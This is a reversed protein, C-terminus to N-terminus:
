RFRRPSRRDPVIRLIAAVAGWLAAYPVGILSLGLGCLVGFCANVLFQLMLYRSVRRTADDLAQMMLNMRSLGALRFLRDRLDHQEILLFLTFILVVGLAGLPALFPKTLDRLYQLENVPETVVQVPLPRSPDPPVNRRVTRELGAREQGAPPVVPTQPNSLEKGLERVNETARGLAGKAPARMAQIKNHINEQYGPLENLVQVMQNFIVIGIAGAAGISIAVVIVAALARNVRMKVLRAVAPSLILTLTIAFALPIVIERALYLTALVTILIALTRVSSSGRGHSKIM